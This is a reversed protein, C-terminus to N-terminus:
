KNLADLVEQKLPSISPDFYNVLYGEEDVLYKSFNWSPIKQNWGNKTSDTLWQYVPNQNPEKVVVSKKMLPFTVGFNVKCFTAIEEDSKQEQEKFDNAPFGLIVLKDKYKEHLEQLAAYQNTYGCNSATNVIMVKKGKLQSFDYTQGNNLTGSLSYFSISPTTKEHSATEVNKGVLKTFFMWAPYVAKMLKQRYNMKKSNKNVLEVYGLFALFLFFFFIGFRKIRM